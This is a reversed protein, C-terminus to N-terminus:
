SALRFRDVFQDSAWNVGQDSLVSKWWLSKPQSFCVESWSEFFSAFDPSMLYGNTGTGGDLWDSHHDFIVNGYGDQNLNLSFYDGNGEAHFPIWNHMLRNTVIALESDDVYPFGYARAAEEDYLRWDRMEIASGVSDEVTEMEFAASAGDAIWSLTLGNAFQTVFDVFSNPLEFGIREQAADIDASSATPNLACDLRVGCNALHKSVRDIVAQM